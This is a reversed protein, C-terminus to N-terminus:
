GYWQRLTELDIEGLGPEVRQAEHLAEAGGTTTLGLTMLGAANASAIGAATDEIALCQGPELPEGHYEALKEVAQRYSAPDPKSKAVDDASVIVPFRDQLKIQKLVGDIDRRTAGSAIAQHLQGSAQDILEVAGPLARAEAAMIKDFAEAKRDCLTQRAPGEPVPQGGDKLIVDFGDRDDYGVYRELYTAYDFRVGMPEVVELFARYHAPESDVIVGDFDWIIAKLMAALRHVGPGAPLM